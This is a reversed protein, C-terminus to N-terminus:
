RNAPGVWGVGAIEITERSVTGAYGVRGAGALSGSLEGGDMTLTVDSAGALDVRADTVVIGRLKINSAGAVTLDLLEYRGDRAVLEVAGAVDIALRDGQFGSMRVQSGGAVELARLAPVVIDVALEAGSRDSRLGPRIGTGHLRLREGRVSAEVDDRYGEPYSLDVRWEDGQTIDVRWMGNIEIENFGTHETSVAVMEGPDFDAPRSSGFNMRLAVAAVVMTGVVIGLMSLLAIQSPKM